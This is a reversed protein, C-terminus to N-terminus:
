KRKQKTEFEVACTEDLQTKKSQKLIYRKTTPAADAITRTSTRTEVLELDVKLRVDEEFVHTEKDTVKFMLSGPQTPELRRVILVQDHNEVLGMWCSFDGTTHEHQVVLIEALVWPVQTDDLEIAIFDGVTLTQALAAGDVAPASRTLPMEARGSRKFECERVGLPGTFAHNECLGPQLKICGSCRHCSLGRVRVFSSRGIDNFQHMKSSDRVSECEALNHKVGKVGIYFYVREYIGKGKKTFYDRQPQMNGRGNNIEPDAGICYEYVEESTDMQTPNDCTHQM